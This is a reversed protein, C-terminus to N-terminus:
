IEVKDIYYFQDTGNAGDDFVCERVGDETEFKDEIVNYENLIVLELFMGTEDSMAYVIKM